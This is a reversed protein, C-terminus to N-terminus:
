AARAKGRYQGVVFLAQEITEVVHATGRWEAHWRKQAPTFRRDSPSQTPDKIELLVNVRETGVLLDPCGAGIAALSQVSCGAARLASAIEAHNGDVKAARRTM